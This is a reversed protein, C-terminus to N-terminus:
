PPTLARQAYRTLVGVMAERRDFSETAVLDEVAEALAAMTAMSVLRLEETRHGKWVGSARLQKEIVGTFEMRAAHRAEEVAPSVGVAEILIVTAMAPDHALTEFFVRVGAAIM